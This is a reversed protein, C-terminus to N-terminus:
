HRIVKHKEPPHVVIRPVDKHRHGSVTTDYSGLTELSGDTDDLAEHVEDEEDDDYGAGEGALDAQDHEGRARPVEPLYARTHNQKESRARPVEPFFKTKRTVPVPVQTIYLRTKAVFM